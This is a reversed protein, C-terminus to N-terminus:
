GAYAREWFWTLFPQDRIHTEPRFVHGAPIQLSQVAIPGPEGGSGPLDFPM